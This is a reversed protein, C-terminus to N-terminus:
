RKWVRWTNAGIHKVAEYKLMLMFNCSNEFDGTICGATFQHCNDSIFNYERCSGIMSKARKAFEKSGVAKKGSCSVFISSPPNFGGLRETFEKPSVEEILGSGNLHVIKNNGIYIGSHEAYGGVLYCYVISGISPEDVPDRGAFIEIAAIVPDRGASINTAAIAGTIIVETVAVLVGGKAVIGATFAAIPAVRALALLTTKDLNEVVFDVADGAVNGVIDATSSVGDSVIMASAAVRSSSLHKEHHLASTGGAFFCSAPSVGASWYEKVSVIDVTGGAVDSVIDVVDSFSDSLGM